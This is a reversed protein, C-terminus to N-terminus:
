RTAAWAVLGFGANYFAHLLAPPLVSGSRERLHGFVLSPGATALAWGAPQVWLHAAVFVLTAALNACSVPGPGRRGWAALLEGQLVGRFAAEELAPQLLVLSVWAWASTPAAMAGAACAWLLAWAPVAVLVAALAQPDALWGLWGHAPRVFGHVGPMRDRHGGTNM